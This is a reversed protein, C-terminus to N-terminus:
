VSKWWSLMFSWASVCDLWMLFLRYSDPVHITNSSNYWIQIWILNKWRKKHYSNTLNLALLYFMLLSRLMLQVASLSAFLWVGVVSLCCLWKFVIWLFNGVCGLFFFFGRHHCVSDKIGEQQRSSWDAATDCVQRSLWGCM